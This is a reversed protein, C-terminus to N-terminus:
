PRWDTLQDRFASVVWYHPIGRKGLLECSKPEIKEKPTLIKLKESFETERKLFVSDANPM